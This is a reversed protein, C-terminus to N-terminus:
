YVVHAEEFRGNVNFKKREVCVESVLFMGLSQAQYFIMRVLEGGGRMVKAQYFTGGMM